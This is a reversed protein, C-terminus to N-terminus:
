VVGMLELDIEDVTNRLRHRAVRLTEAILQRTCDRHFPLLEAHLVRNMDRRFLRYVVGGGAQPIRAYSFCGRHAPLKPTYAM